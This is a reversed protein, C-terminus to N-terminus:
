SLLINQQRYQHRLKHAVSIEDQTLLGDGDTDAATFKETLVFQVENGSISGDQNVDFEEVLRNARDTAVATGMTLSLVIASSLSMITKM